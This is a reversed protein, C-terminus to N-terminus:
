ELRRMTGWDKGAKVEVTVRVPPAPMAAIMAETMSAKLARAVDAVQDDPVEYLLADNVPSLLRGGRARIEPDVAVMATKLADAEIAQIPAALRANFTTGPRGLWLRRGLPTVAMQTPMSAEREHWEALESFADFFARILANAEVTSLRVGYQERAFRRFGQEGVGYLLGFNAAKGFARQHELIKEATCDFYRAATWAHLDTGAEFLERLQKVNSWCSAIRLQSANYDGEVLLHGDRAVICSRVRVDRPVAIINPTSSSIRATVGNPRFKPHVRGDADHVAKTWPRLFGNILAASARARVAADILPDERLDELDEAELNDYGKTQLAHLLTPERPDVGLRSRVLGAYHELDSQQHAALELLRKSDIVIGENSARDLIQQVHAELEVIGSLSRAGVREEVWTAVDHIARVEYALRGLRENPTRSISASTTAALAQELTDPGQRIDGAQFLVRVAVRVDRHGSVRAADWAYPRLEALLSLVQERTSAELNAPVFEIHCGNTSVALTGGVDSVISVISTRGKITEVFSEFDGPGLVGHVTAQRWTPAACVSEIEAAHLALQVLAAPSLPPGAVREVEGANTLRVTSGRQALVNLLRLLDTLDSVRM